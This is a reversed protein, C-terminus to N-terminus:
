TKPAPASETAAPAAAIETWSDVMFDKLIGLPIAYGMGEAFGFGLRLKFTVIGFLEGNALFMGGGSNGPNIAADTQISEFPFGGDSKDKVYNSVIGQSVSDEVGLPNGILIIRAGVQPKKQTTKVPPGIDERVFVIALDIQQPAIVIRVPRVRMGENIIQINPSILVKGAPAADSTVVHRNTLIATEGGCRYLIVGSGTAEDSKILVTSKRLQGVIEQLRKESVTSEDERDKTDNEQIPSRKRCDRETVSAPNKPGPNQATVGACSSILPEVALLTAMAGILLRRSIKGREKGKEEKKKESGAELVKEM